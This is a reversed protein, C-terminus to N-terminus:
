TMIVRCTLFLRYHFDVGHEAVVALGGIVLEEHVASADVPGPHSSLGRVHDLQTEGSHDANGVRCRVLSVPECDRENGLVALGTMGCTGSPIGTGSGISTDAAKLMPRGGIMTGPSVWTQGSAAFKSSPSRSSPPYLNTMEMSPVSTFSRGSRTATGGVPILMTCGCAVAEHPSQPSGRLSNLASGQVAAGRRLQLPSDDGRGLLRPRRPRIKARCCRVVVAFSALWRSSDQCVLWCTGM